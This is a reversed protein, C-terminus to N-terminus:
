LIKLKLSPKSEQHAPVKRKVVRDLIARQGVWGEIWHTYIVIEVPTFYDSCSTCLNPICPVNGGHGSCAKMSHHNPVLLAKKKVQYCDERKM